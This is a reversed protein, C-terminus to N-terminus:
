LGVGPPPAVNSTRNSAATGATAHVGVSRPMFAAHIVPCAPLGARRPLVVTERRAGYKTCGDLEGAREEHGAVAAQSDNRTPRFPYDVPMGETPRPRVSGQWTSARVNQVGIWCGDVVLHTM